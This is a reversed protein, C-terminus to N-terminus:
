FQRIGYLAQPSRKGEEIEKKRNAIREMGKKEISVLKQWLAIFIIGKVLYYSLAGIILYKLATAKDM